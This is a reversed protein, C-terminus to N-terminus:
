LRALLGVKEAVGSKMSQSQAECWVALADVLKKVEGLTNGAHLCVRVRQTGIPVTPPVVARVMMGYDQLYQALARPRDLQIALIPSKPCACPLQLLGRVADNSRHLERMSTFLTQTLDHLHAQM